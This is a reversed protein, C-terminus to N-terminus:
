NQRYIPEPSILILIRDSPGQYATKVKIHPSYEFGKKCREVPQYFYNCSRVWRNIIPFANELPTTLDLSLEVVEGKFAIWPTLGEGITEQLRGLSGNELSSLVQDALHELDARTEGEEVKAPLAKEKPSPLITGGKKKEQSHATAKENRGHNLDGMMTLLSDMYESSRGSHGHEIELEVALASLSEYAKRLNSLVEKRLAEKKSKKGFGFM